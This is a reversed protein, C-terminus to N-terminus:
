TLGRAYAAFTITSAKTVSSRVRLTCSTSGVGHASVWCDADSTHGPLVAPTASFAVPYTWAVDASRFLSGDATSANAASRGTTWCETSGDPHQVFNGNANSGRVGSLAQWTIAGTLSAQAGYFAGQLGATTTATMVLFTKRATGGTLSAPAEAVILTAAGASTTPGGTVTGPAYAYIGPRLDRDQLATTGTLLVAGGLGFAGVPLLRGATTDTASTQVANGTISDAQVDDFARAGSPLSVGGTSAGVVLVNQGAHNGSFSALITTAQGGFVPAVAWGNAANAIGYPDTNTNNHITADLLSVFGGYVTQVASSQCGNITAGQLNARGIGEYGRYLADSLNSNIGLVDGSNRVNIGFSKFGGNSGIALTSGAEVTAGVHILTQTSPSAITSCVFETDVSPLRGGATARLFSCVTRSGYSANPVEGADATFSAINVPVTADDSRITIQSLDVGVVSIQEAITTGTLIRVVIEPNGAAITLRYGSLAQLAALLTTYDGGTGVTVELDTTVPNVTPPVFAEVFGETALSAWSTGNSGKFKNDTFFGIAGKNPSAAPLPSTPLSVGKGILRRRGSLSPM